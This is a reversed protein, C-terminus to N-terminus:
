TPARLGSCYSSETLKWLMVKFCELLGGLLFVTILIAWSSDENAVPEVSGHEAEEVMKTLDSLLLIFKTLATMVPYTLLM